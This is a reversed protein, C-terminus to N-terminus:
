GIVRRLPGRDVHGLFARRGPAGTKRLIAAVQNSATRVATGRRAAIEADALGEALLTAVEAEAPTLSDDTAAPVPAGLVLAAVRGAERGSPLGVKAAIARLARSVQAESLGLAWAVEKNTTGFAVQSLAAEELRSLARAPDRRTRHLTYAREGSGLTHARLALRGDVLGTWAELAVDAAEGGGPAVLTLEVRGTVTVLGVPQEDLSGDM